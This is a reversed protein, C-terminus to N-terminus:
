IAVLSSQSLQLIRFYAFLSVEAAIYDETEKTLIVQSNFPWDIFESDNTGALTFIFVINCALFFGFGLKRLNKLAKAKTQVEERTMELPKLTNDKLMFNKWFMEEVPNIKSHLGSGLNPNSIWSQDDIQIEDEDESDKFEDESEDPKEVQNLPKYGPNKWRMNVEDFKKWFTNDNNNQDNNGKKPDERTGWSVIHLNALSYIPLSIYLTPLFVYYPLGACLIYFEKPHIFASLLFLVILSYFFMSAPNYPQLVLRNIFKVGLLVMVLGYFVSAWYAYKLQFEEKAFLCMLVNGLVIGFFFIGSTQESYGTAIAFGGVMMFLMAGAGILSGLLLIHQYFIFGKSMNDNVIVTKRFRIIMDMINAMTSSM